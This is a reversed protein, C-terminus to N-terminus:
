QTHPRRSEKTWAEPRQLEQWLAEVQRRTGALSKANCVEFDALPRKEEIPLQAGLRAKAEKCGIGDRRMLREIQVERPAYVLLVKHFLDRRRSEFLLPMVVQLIGGPPAAKGMEELRGAYLEFTRPHVMRELSKRKAEDNFVIGGLRKRDLSGDEQLIGRGFFAVIAEWAPRGPEVAERALVDFDIAPAGLAELMGSVASKGTAIGGTVGLLWPGGAARMRRVGERLGRITEEMGKGSRESM